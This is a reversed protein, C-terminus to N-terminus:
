GLREERFDFLPRQPHGLRDLDLVPIDMAAFSRKTMPAEGGRRAGGTPIMTHAAGDMGTKRRGNSQPNAGDDRAIKPSDSRTAGGNRDITSGIAGLHTAM